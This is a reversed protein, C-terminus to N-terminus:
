EERVYVGTKGQVERVKRCIEDYRGVLDALQIRKMREEALERRAEDRENKILENYECLEDIRASMFIIEDSREKGCRAYYRLDNLESRKILVYGFM